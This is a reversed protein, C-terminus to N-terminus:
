GIHGNLYNELDTYGQRQKRDIESMGKGNPKSSYGRDQEKSLWTNVFKTIGRATKRRTPNSMCWGRMSNFAQKVDVNPYLSVYEDYLKKDPLWESGDNLPIAAVDAKPETKEECKKPETSDLVSVTKTDIINVPVINVTNTNTNPTDTCYTDIGYRYLPFNIIEGNFLRTLYEKFEKHKVALIEKELPKRYKESSTWNYKHWNVLLVEKTEGCYFAVKHVESFRKLFREISDKNYGTENAMQSIGVEYCGALNTHPNTFLYLYFYRDEPTFEDAIKTDTWFSLSITRYLAM